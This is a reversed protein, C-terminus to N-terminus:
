SYQLSIQIIVYSEFLSSYKAKAGILKDHIAVGYGVYLVETLVKLLVFTPVLGLQM